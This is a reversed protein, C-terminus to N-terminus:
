RLGHRVLIQYRSPQAHVAVSEPKNNRVRLRQARRELRPQRPVNKNRRMENAIGHVPIQHQDVHGIHTRITPGLSANYPRHHPRMRRDDADKVVSAPAAIYFGDVALDRM